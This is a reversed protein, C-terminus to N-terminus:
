LADTVSPAPDERAPFFTVSTEGVRITKWRSSGGKEEPVGLTNYLARPTGHVDVSTTAM